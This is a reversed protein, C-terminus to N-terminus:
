ALANAEPALATNQLGFVWSLSTSIARCIRSMPAGEAAGALKHFALSLRVFSLGNAMTMAMKFYFRPNCEPHWVAVIPARRVDFNFVGDLKLPAIIKEIEGLIDADFYTTYVQEDFHHAVFGTIRGDRCFM